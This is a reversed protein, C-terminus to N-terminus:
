PCAAENGIFAVEQLLPVEVDRPLVGLVRVELGLRDVHIGAGASWSHANACAPFRGAIGILIAEGPALSVAEFPRAHAADLGVVEGDGVLAEPGVLQLADEDLGRLSVITVPLFTANRVEVGFAVRGDPAFAITAVGDEDMTSGSDPPGQAVGSSGTALPPVLWAAAVGLALLGVAALVVTRPRLLASSGEGTM